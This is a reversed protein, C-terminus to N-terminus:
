VWIKIWHKLLQHPLPQRHRVLHLFMSRPTFPKHPGRCSKLKGCGRVVPTRIGWAGIVSAQSVVAAM